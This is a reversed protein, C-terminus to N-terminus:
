FGRFLETTSFAIYRVLADPQPGTSNSIYEIPIERGMLEKLFPSLDKKAKDQWEKTSLGAIKPLGTVM